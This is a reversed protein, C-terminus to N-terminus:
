VCRPMAGTLPTLGSQVLAAPTSVAVGATRGEQAAGGLGPLAGPLGHQEGVSRCSGPDQVTEGSAGLRGLYGGLLEGLEAAGLVPIVALLYVCPQLRTWGPPGAPTRASLQRGEGM